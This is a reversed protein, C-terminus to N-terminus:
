TASLHHTTDLNLHAPHPPHAYIANRGDHGRLLFWRLGIPASSFLRSIEAHAFNALQELPPSHPRLLASHLSFSHSQQPSQNSSLTLHFTDDLRHFPSESTAAGSPVIYQIINCLVFLPSCLPRRLPCVPEVSRHHHCRLHSQSPM